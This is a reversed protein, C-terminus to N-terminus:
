CIFHLNHPFLSSIFSAESMRISNRTIYACARLNQLFWGSSKDCARPNQRGRRLPSSSAVSFSSSIGVPIWIKSIWLILAFIALFFYLFLFTPAVGRTLNKLFDTTACSFESNEFKARPFFHILLHFCFMWTLPSVNGFTMLLKAIGSILLMSFRSSVFFTLGKMSGVLPHMTQNHEINFFFFCM